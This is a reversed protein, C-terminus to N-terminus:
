KVLPSGCKCCFKYNSNNPEGCQSCFIQSVGAPIDQNKKGLIDSEMKKLNEISEKAQEIQQQKQELETLIGRFSEIEVNGSKWQQYLMVGAQNYLASCESELTGIHTKIKTEEMFNNTKVNITTLGKSFTEKFGAM